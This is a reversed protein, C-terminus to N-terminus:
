RVSSRVASSSTSTLSATATSFRIRDGTGLGDRKAAQAVRCAADLEESWTRRVSGQVLMEDDPQHRALYRLLGAVTYRDEETVKVSSAM